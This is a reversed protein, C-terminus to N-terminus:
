LAGLRLRSVGAVPRSVGGLLGGAVAVIVVARMGPFCADATGRFRGLRALVGLLVVIVV